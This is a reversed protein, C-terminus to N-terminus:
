NASSSSEDENSVTSEVQNTREVRAMQVVTRRGFISGLERVATRMITAPNTSSRLANTIERLTQERKARKQTQEFLVQNEVAIGVQQMISRYPLLEKGTFSITEESELLLSGIQHTDDWLPLSAFAHINQAKFVAASAPDV